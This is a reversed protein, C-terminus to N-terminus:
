IPEIAFLHTPNSEAADPVVVLCDAGSASSLRYFIQKKQQITSYKSKLSNWFKDKAPTWQSAPEM